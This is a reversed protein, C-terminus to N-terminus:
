LPDIPRDTMSVHPQGRRAFTLFGTHGIMAHMPRAVPGKFEWARFSCEYTEIEAFLGTTRYAQVSEAVQTVNPVYSCILGGPVMVGAAHTAVRWPQPLDLVVRDFPGDDIGEYADRCRVTWNSCPGHYGEVTRRAHEVMDARLEYSVLAGSPGIARLLATALAGTGVGAEFVRAGPFIDAWMLLFAIDKPYLITSQRPVEMLYDQLRPRYAWVLSGRSTQVLVGEEQGLLDAHRVAGHHFVYEGGETLRTLYHKGNRDVLLVLEGARLPNM